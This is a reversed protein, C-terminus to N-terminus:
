RLEDIPLCLDTKTMLALSFNKNLRYLDKGGNRTDLKDYLNDYRVERTVEISDSLTKNVLFKKHHRNKEGAMIGFEDNPFWTDRNIFRKGPRTVGFTAYAVKHSTRKAQNETEEVNMVAM